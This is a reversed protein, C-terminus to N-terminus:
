KDYKKAQYVICHEDSPFVRTRYKLQNNSKPHTDIILYNHPGAACCDDYASMLCKYDNMMIGLSRLYARDRPSSMLINVHFNKVLVSKMKGPMSADQVILCTSLKHHHGYRVLLDAFFPNTSIERAKDDAIYIGHKKSKMLERIHSEEPIEESFYIRDGWHAKIEDYAPQWHSYSFICM